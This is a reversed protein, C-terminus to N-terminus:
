GTQKKMQKNKKIVLYGVPRVDARAPVSPSCLISWIIMAKSIGYTKPCKM